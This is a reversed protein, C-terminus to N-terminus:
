PYILKRFGVWYSRWNFNYSCFYFYISILKNSSKALRTGIFKETM